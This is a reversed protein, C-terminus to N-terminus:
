ASVESKSAAKEELSALRAEIALLSHVIAILLRVQDPVVEQRAAASQEVFRSEARARETDANAQHNNM